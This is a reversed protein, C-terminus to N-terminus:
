QCRNVLDNNLGHVNRITGNDIHDNCYSTFLNVHQLMEPCDKEAAAPGATAACHGPPEAGQSLLLAVVCVVSLRGECFSPQLKTGGTSRLLAIERRTETIRAVHQSKLRWGLPPSFGVGQGLQSLQEYRFIRTM